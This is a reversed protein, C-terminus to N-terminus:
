YMNLKSYDLVCMEIYIPKNLKVNKKQMHAFALDDNINVFDKM